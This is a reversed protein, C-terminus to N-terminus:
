PQDIVAGLNIIPLCLTEGFLLPDGQQRAIPARRLPIMFKPYVQLATDVILRANLGIFGQLADVTVVKSQRFAGEASLTPPFRFAVAPDADESVFPLQIRVKHLRRNKLPLAARAAHFSKSFQRPAENCRAMKILTNRGERQFHLRDGPGHVHNRGAM